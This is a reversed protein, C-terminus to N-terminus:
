FPLCVNLAGLLLNIYRSSIIRGHSAKKDFIFKNEISYELLGSVGQIAHKTKFYWIQDQKQYLLSNYDM